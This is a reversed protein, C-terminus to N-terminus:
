TAEVAIGHKMAVHSRLWAVAESRDRFTWAEWGTQEIFLMYVLALHNAYEDSAFMAVVRETDRLKSAEIACNAAAALDRTTVSIAKLQNCDFFTYCIPATTVAFANVQRVAEVFAEGTLEGSVTAKVGHNDNLFELTLGM